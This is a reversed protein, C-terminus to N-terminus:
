TRGGGFTTRFDELGISGLRRAGALFGLPGGPAPVFSARGLVPRGGSVARVLAPRGDVVQVTGGPSPPLRPLRRAPRFGGRAIEAGGAWAVATGGPDLRLDFTALEKPYGWLERGGDRSAGSDVWMHTVTATPRRRFTGAVAAFLESYELVSGPGYRVWGVAVLGRGAATLPTFGAPVPPLRGAGVAFLSVVADGALEWPEPPYAHSTTGQPAGITEVV